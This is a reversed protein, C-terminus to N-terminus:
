KKCPKELYFLDEFTHTFAYLNEGFIVFDTTLYLRCIDDSLQDLENNEKSTRKYVISRKNELQIIPNSTKVFTVSSLAEDSPQAVIIYGHYKGKIETDSATAVRQIFNTWQENIIENKLEIKDCSIKSNNGDYTQVSEIKKISVRKHM